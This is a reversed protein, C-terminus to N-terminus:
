LSRDRKERLSKRDLKGSLSEQIADVDLVPVIYAVRGKAIVEVTTGARIGLAERVKEPIVVQYKSSVKVTM